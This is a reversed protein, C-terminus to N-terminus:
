ILRCYVDGWGDRLATIVGDKFEEEVWKVGSNEVIRAMTHGICSSGLHVWFGAKLLSRAEEKKSDTWTNLTFVSRCENDNMKIIDM